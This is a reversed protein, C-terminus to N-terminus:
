TRADAGGEDQWRLVDAVRQEEKARYDRYAQERRERELQLAVSLGAEYAAKEEAYYARLRADCEKKTGLDCTVGAGDPWHTHTRPM